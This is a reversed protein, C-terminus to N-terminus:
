LAVPFGTAHFSEIRFQYRSPVSVTIPDFRAVMSTLASTSEEDKAENEPTVDGKLFRFHPQPSNVRQPYPCSIGNLALLLM